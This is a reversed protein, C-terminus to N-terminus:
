RRLWARRRTAAHGPGTSLGLEGGVARALETMARSLASQPAAELLTQGNVWCADVAPQDLPLYALPVEGITQLLTRSVDDRSWVLGGRVRNVVLRVRASPRTERLDHRARALRVLGLPEAGGVAVVLDAAEVAAVTAGNRRPAATDFSLEEDQELCFGCDVVVLRATQRARSLVGRLAAPRLATWRDARPLGTLVRLRPAM